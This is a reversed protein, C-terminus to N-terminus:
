DQRVVPLNLQMDQRVDLEFTHGTPTPETWPLPLTENLLTISHQGSAVLAFEFRGWADTQVAYRNDLLLTVNALGSEGADQRANGNTDMFVVGRISGAASGPAGGLPRSRSGAANEYRLALLASTGTVRTTSVVPPALPDISVTSAATGSTHSLTADLAWHASLRWSMGSYVNSLHSGDSRYQVSASSSFTSLRGTSTSFQLSLGNQHVASTGRTSDTSSLDQTGTSLGTSLQMDAPLQWDHTLSLERQRQSGDNRDQWRLFSGGADSQWRFESQLSHARGQYDRTTASLGASTKRDFNWVVSASALTGVRAPTSISQLADFQGSVSWQRSWRHTRVYGGRLDSALGQAAWSIQPALHYLGWTHHWPGDRHEADLWLGQGSTAADSRVGSLGQSQSSLMNFTVQGDSGELRQRMVLHWASAHARTLSQQNQPLLGDAQTYRLAIQQQPGSWQWGTGTLRGPQRTFGSVPLGQWYGPQGISASAYWRGDNRQWATSAGAMLQRPLVIRSPALSLPPATESIAGLENNVRWGGQLALGRQRLTVAAHGPTQNMDVSFVGYQPTEIWGKLMWGTRLQDAHLPDTGLLADMRFSRWWGDPNYPPADAIDSDGSEPAMPDAAIERDLYSLAANPASAVAVASTLPWAASPSASADTAASTASAAPAALVAVGGPSTQAFPRNAPGSPRAQTLPPRLSALRLAPSSAPTALAAGPPAAGAATPRQGAPRAATPAELAPPQPTFLASLPVALGSGALLAVTWGRRRSNM